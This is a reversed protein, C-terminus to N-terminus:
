SKWLNRSFTYMHLTNLFVESVQMFVQGTKSDEGCVVSLIACGTSPDVSQTAIPTSTSKEMDGPTLTVKDM